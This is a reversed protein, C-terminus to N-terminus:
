ERVRTIVIKSGDDGTLIFSSAVRDAVIWMTDTECSDVTTFNVADTGDAYLLPLTQLRHPLKIYTQHGDDFVSVPRYPEVPAKPAQPAVKWGFGIEGLPIRLAECGRAPTPTAEPPLMDRGLTDIPRLQQQPNTDVFGYLHQRANPDSRLLIDYTHRTTHVVLNTSLGVDLPKIVIHEVLPGTGPDLTGDPGSESRSISWRVTDGSFIAPLGGEVVIREGPQFAIDCASLPACAITVRGDPPFRLVGDSGLTVGSPAASAGASLAAVLALSALIRRM